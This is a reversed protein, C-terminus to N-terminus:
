QEMGGIWMYGIGYVTKIGHYGAVEIKRRIRSIASTLAHEDVFNQEVDWLQDLLIKRTLVVGRRATFLELIRIELATLHLYSGDFSATMREFDLLLRGDDYIRKPKSQHDTWQLIREIKRRLVSIPFPKIIYDDAGQSFGQLMDQELDRATLFVVATDPREKKWSCCLSFSEGDPLNVDLLVLSFTKHRWKEKGERVSFAMDVEYGQKQLNYCLTENLVRDDEVILLKKM